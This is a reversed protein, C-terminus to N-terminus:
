FSYYKGIAWTPLIANQVEPDKQVKLLLLFDHYDNIANPIDHKEPNEWRPAIKTVMTHIYERQDLMAQVLDLSLGM